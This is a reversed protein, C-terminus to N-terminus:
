GIQKLEMTVNYRLTSSNMKVSKRDFKADKLPQVTVSGGGPSTFSASGAAVMAWYATEITNAESGTITAWSMKYTYRKTGVSDPDVIDISLTGDALERTAGALSSSAEYEAPYALTTGGLVPQTAM